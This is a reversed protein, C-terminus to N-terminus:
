CHQTSCWKQFTQKTRMANLDVEPYLLLNQGAFCHLGATFHETVKDLNGLNFKLIKDENKETYLFVHM